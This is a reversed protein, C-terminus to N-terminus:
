ERPPQRRERGDQLPMCCATYRGMRREEVSVALYLGACSLLVLTLVLFM